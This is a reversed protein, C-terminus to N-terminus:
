FSTGVAPLGCQPCIDNFRPAPGLPTQDRAPPLSPPRPHHPDEPYAAAAPRSAAVGGFDAVPHRSASARPGDSVGAALHRAGFTARRRTLQEQEILLQDLADAAPRDSGATGGAPASLPASPPGSKADRMRETAGAMRWDSRPPWVGDPEGRQAQYSLPRQTPSSPPLPPSLASTSTGTEKVPSDGSDGVLDAVLDSLNSFDLKARPEPKPTSPAVMVHARTASRAPPPLPTRMPFPTNGTPTSATPLGTQASTPAPSNVHRSLEAIINDIERAASVTKRPPPKNKKKKKKKQIQGRRLKLEPIRETEGPQCTRARCLRFGAAGFSFSFVLWPRGDQPYLIRCKVAAKAQAGGGAALRGM